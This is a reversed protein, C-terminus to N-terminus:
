GSPARMLEGRPSNDPCGTAPRPQPQSLKRPDRFPLSHRRPSPADRPSTWNVERALAMAQPEHATSGSPGLARVRTPLDPEPFRAALITEIETRTKHTCATILEDANSPDLKSALVTLGSLHLRGDAIAAFAAPCRRAVRAATIREYTAGESFNFRGVCYAHMSSYGLGLYRRRHDVEALHALLAATIRRDRGVLDALNRLLTEDSVHALSYTGM